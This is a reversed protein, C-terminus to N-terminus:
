EVRVEVTGDGGDRGTTSLSGARGGAVGVVVVVVGVGTAAAVGGAASIATVRGETAVITASTSAVPTSGPDLQLQLM